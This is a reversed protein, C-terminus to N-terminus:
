RAEGSRTRSVVSSSLRNKKFIEELESTIALIKRISCRAVNTIRDIVIESIYRKLLDKTLETIAKRESRKEFFRHQV